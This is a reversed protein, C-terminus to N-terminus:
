AAVGKVSKDLGDKKTRDDDAGSHGAHGRKSIGIYQVRERTYASRAAHTKCATKDPAHQADLSEPWQLVALVPMGRGALISRPRIM